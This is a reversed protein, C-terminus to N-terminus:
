QANQQPLARLVELVKPLVYADLAAYERQATYLPRRAWDSMQMRKDLPSGLTRWVLLSLGGVSADRSPPSAATVGGGVEPLRRGKAIRM